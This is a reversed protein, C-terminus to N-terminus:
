MGSTLNRRGVRLKCQRYQDLRLQFISMRIRSMRTSSGSVGACLNQGAKRSWQDDDNLSKSSCQEQSTAQDQSPAPSLRLTCSRVACGCLGNWTVVLVLFDQSSALWIFDCSVFDTRSTVFCAEELFRRMPVNILLSRKPSFCGVYTAYGLPVCAYSTSRLSSCFESCGGLSRCLLM